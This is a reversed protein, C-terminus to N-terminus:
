YLDSAYASANVRLITSRLSPFPPPFWDDDVEVKFGGAGIFDTTVGGDREIMALGM